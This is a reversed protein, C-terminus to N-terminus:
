FTDFDLTDSSLLKSVSEIKTYAAHDFQMSPWDHASRYTLQKRITYSKGFPVSCATSVDDPAHVIPGYLPMPAAHLLM